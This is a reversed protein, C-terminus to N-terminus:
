SPPVLGFRDLADPKSEEEPPLWSKKTRGSHIPLEIANDRILKEAAENLPVEVATTARQLAPKPCGQKCYAEEDCKLRIADFENRLAGSASRRKETSLVILMQGDIIDLCDHVFNSCNRHSRLSDIWNTVEPKVQAVYNGEKDKKLIFFINNKAGTIYQTMRKDEFEAVSKTGGLLWTLLELFLCGVTWIDYDRSITGGEVDCEPPRYGPVPPVKQNPINSRSTDRNFASLGFDSIVLMGRAQTQSSKFCLINDRKIDGHRGWRRVPGHHLHRPNHITDLAGIIGSLQQSVWQVTDFSWGPEVKELYQDLDYSANPFIFHWRQKHKFTSLITVLHPHVLGSFRKLQELEQRYQQETNFKKELLSKVAFVRSELNIEDLVRHFDHGTPHIVVRNVEGFGGLIESTGFQAESNKQKRWPLITKEPLDFEKCAKDETMDFFPVIVEWQVREFSERDNTTWNRCCQLPLPTGRLYLQSLRKSDRNFVLPLKSDCVEEKVFHGFSGVKAVLVLIAFVKLYTDSNSRGTEPSILEVYREVDSRNFKYDPRRLEAQVRPRTLIHQLLKATWFRQNDVADIDYTRLLEGLSTRPDDEIDPLRGDSCMKWPDWSPSTPEELDDIRITPNSINNM